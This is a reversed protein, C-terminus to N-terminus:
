CVYFADEKERLIDETISLIKRQLERPQFPKSIYGTVSADKAALIEESGTRVTLMLFPLDPYSERVSRLLDLGNINPMEWDSIILDYPDTNQRIKRLAHRGDRARDIRTAGMDQLLAVILRAMEIDDDVVLVSLGKAVLHPLDMRM